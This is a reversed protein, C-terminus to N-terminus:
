VGYPHQALSPFGKSILLLLFIGAPSSAAGFLHVKMYYEVPNCIEMLGPSGLSKRERGRKNEQFCERGKVTFIVFRAFYANTTIIM